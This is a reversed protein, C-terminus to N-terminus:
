GALTSWFAAEYANVMRATRSLTTLDDGESLGKSVVETALKLMEEPTDAFFRFHAVAPETFGYRAVMADAARTYYGGSEEVNVLLAFPLASRPGFAATQALFAPYAQAFPEPEYALLDAETLHLAAAFDLL